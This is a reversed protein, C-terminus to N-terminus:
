IMDFYERLVLTLTDTLKQVEEPPLIYSEGEGDEGFFSISIEDEDWSIEYEIKEMAGWSLISSEVSHTGAQNVTL